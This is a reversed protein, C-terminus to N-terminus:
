KVQGPKAGSRRWQALSPPLNEVTLWLTPVFEKEAQLTSRAFLAQNCLRTIELLGGPELTSNRIRLVAIADSPDELGSFTWSVQKEENLVITESIAALDADLKKRNELPRLEMVRRRGMPTQANRSILELLKEYELTALSYSM